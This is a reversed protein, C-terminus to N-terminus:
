MQRPYSGLLRIAVRNTKLVWLAEQMEPAFAYGDVDIFFVYEGLRAKAPRSEIRTLNLGRSAFEQLVRCLSGPSDEIRLLLSTKDVGSLERLCHGLLIFRTANDKNDQVGQELCYLGYIDAARRPAIAAWAQDSGAVIRAAEATSLCVAQDAQSLHDELFERCQGFGQPHSYVRRIQELGVPRPTLLCQSVPHLFEGYILLGESETVCDLTTSVQGETSNELPVFAWDVRREECAQIVRSITPFGEAAIEGQFDLKERQLFSWLAEESFSGQPGLYGIKTGEM